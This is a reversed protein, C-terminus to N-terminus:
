KIKKFFTSLRNVFNTKKPHDLSIVIISNSLCFEKQMHITTGIQSIKKAKGVFDEICATIQPYLVQFEESQYISIPIEDRLLNSDIDESINIKIKQM